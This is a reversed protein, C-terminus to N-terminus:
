SQCKIIFFVKPLAMLVLVPIYNDMSTMIVLLFKYSTYMFYKLTGNSNKFMEIDEIIKFTWANQTKYFFKFIYSTFTKMDQGDWMYQYVFVHVCM